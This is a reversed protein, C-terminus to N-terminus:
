YQNRCTPRSVRGSLIFEFIGMWDFRPALVFLCSMLMLRSSHGDLVQPVYDGLLYHRTMNEILFIDMM